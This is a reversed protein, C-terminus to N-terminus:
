LGQAAVFDRGAATIRWAQNEPSLIKTTEAVLQKDALYQVEAGVEQEELRHGEAILATRLYRVPVGFRTPNQELIRLLSLRVQERQAPTIM